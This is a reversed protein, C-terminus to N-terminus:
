FFFNKISSLVPTVFTRSARHTGHAHLQGGTGQGSGLDLVRVQARSLHRLNSQVDLHNAPNEDAFCAALSHKRFSQPRLLM